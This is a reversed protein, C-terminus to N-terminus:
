PGEIWSRFDFLMVVGDFQMPFIVSAEVSITSDLRYYGVFGKLRM